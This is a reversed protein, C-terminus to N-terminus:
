EGILDQGADGGAGDIGAHREGDDHDILRDIM